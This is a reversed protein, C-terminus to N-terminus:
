LAQYWQPPGKKQLMEKLAMYKEESPATAPLREHPDNSSFAICWFINGKPTRVCRLKASRLVGTRGMLNRAAILILGTPDKAATPRPHGMEIARQLLFENRVLWLIEGHNCHRFSQPWKSHIELTVQMELPPLHREFNNLIWTDEHSRTVVVDCFEVVRVYNGATVVLKFVRPRGALEEGEGWCVGFAQEASCAVFGTRAGLRRKLYAVAVATAWITKDVGLDAAKKPIEVGVLVELKPSPAYAGDSGQLMILEYVEKRLSQVVTFLDM